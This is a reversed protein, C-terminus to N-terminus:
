AHVNVDHRAFFLVGKARRGLFRHDVVNSRLDARIGHLRDEGSGRRGFLPSVPRSASAALGLTEGCMRAFPLDDISFAANRDAESSNIAKAAIPMATSTPSLKACIM